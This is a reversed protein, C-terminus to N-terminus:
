GLVDEMEHAAPDSSRRGQEAFLGVLRGAAISGRRVVGGVFTRHELPQGNPRLMPLALQHGARGDAVASPIGYRRLVQSMGRGYQYHQRMLAAVGRRHRYHVVADPAYELRVGARLLSWSLAIDECRVLSADFGGVREFVGRRVALNASVIYPVGLFSPLARPTAPPRWGRQGPIAFREEDLHGGVAVDDATARVLRELWLPAVEDDADCFAIVEASSAHAGVNRAYAASRVSHADAIRLRGDGNHHEVLQRLATCAVPDATNCSLVVEFPFTTEQALVARLQKALLADVRGVSIVVVADARSLGAHDRTV